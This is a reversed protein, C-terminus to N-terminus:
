LSSAIRRFCISAVLQGKRGGFEYVHYKIRSYEELIGQVNEGETFWRVIEEETWNVSTILLYGGPKIMRAVTGPYVECVRVDKGLQDITEPSLSIADFTGKDTVLDFGGTPWWAQQAPEDNLLDFKEFIIDDARLTSEQAEGAQEEVHRSWLRRALDISHQSYDVGVIKGEYGGELKLEFLSSGNGCGLDLVNPKETTRNPNNPSLPFEEDTLYELIKAPANVESFWSELDTLDTNDEQGLGNELESEYCQDWSGTTLGAFTGVLSSTYASM